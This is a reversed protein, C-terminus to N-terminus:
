FRTSIYNKSSYKTFFDFFHIRIIFYSIINKKKQIDASLKMRTSMQSNFM